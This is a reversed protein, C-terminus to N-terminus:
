RSKLPFHQDFDTLWGYRELLSPVEWGGVCVGWRSQCSHFHISFMKKKKKEPPSLHSSNEYSERGERIGAEEGEM